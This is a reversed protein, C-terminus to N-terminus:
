LCFILHIAAAQLCLSVVSICIWFQGLEPKVSVIILRMSTLYSDGSTGCIMLIEFQGRAFRLKQTEQRCVQPICFLFPFVTLCLMERNIRDRNLKIQWFAWRQLILCPLLLLVGAPHLFYFFHIFILVALANLTTVSFRMQKSPIKKSLNVLPQREKWNKQFM